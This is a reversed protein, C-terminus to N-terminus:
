AAEKPDIGHASNFIREETKTMRHSKLLDVNLLLGQVYRNWFQVGLALSAAMVM